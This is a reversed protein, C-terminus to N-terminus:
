YKVCKKFVEIAIGVCKSICFHTVLVKKCYLNYAKLITTQASLITELKHYIRTSQESIIILVNVFTTLGILTTSESM